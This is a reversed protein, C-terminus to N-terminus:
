YICLVDLSLIIIELHCLYNKQIPISRVVRQAIYLLFAVMKVLVDNLNLLKIQIQILKLIKKKKLHKRREGVPPQSDTDQVCSSPVSIYHEHQVMDATNVVEVTKKPMQLVREYSVRDM